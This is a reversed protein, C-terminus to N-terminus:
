HLHSRYEFNRDQFKPERLFVSDTLTYLFAKLQGIEYNNLSINKVLTDILHSNSKKRNYFDLVSHISYFRGDHGYPYTVQINRLSPVRFALSDANAHTIKMRGVDKLYTDYQMGTNRFSNDTFFPEKHCTACKTKFIEYGTQEAINFADENKMVRDYKSNNTVLMLLFQSLAKEIKNQTINETGFAAKFQKKYYNDKKLKLIISDIHEGMENPSTIPIIFQHELNLVSGDWMFDKRWALNFLGPANRQTQGNNIGHSLPHDFTSFAAFQQHCSACPFNGDKSLRGDYFLKRGLEFGAQTVPNSKFDYIPTPWGKPSIFINHQKKTKSGEKPKFAQILFVGAVIFGLLIISAFRKM